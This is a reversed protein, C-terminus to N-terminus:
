VQTVNWEAHDNQSNGPLPSWVECKPLFTSYLVSLQSLLLESRPLPPRITRPFPAQQLIQSRIHFFHVRVVFPRPLTGEKPRECPGIPVTLYLSRTWSSCTGSCSRSLDRAGELGEPIGMVRLSNRRSRGELDECKDDLRKVQSTLMDVTAERKDIRTNHDTAAQELDRITAEHAEAARQLPEVSSKLEQRVSLIDSHLSAASADINGALGPTGVAIGLPPLYLPPHNLPM